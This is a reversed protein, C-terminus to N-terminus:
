VGLNMFDERSLMPMAEAKSTQNKSQLNGRGSEKSQFRLTLKLEYNEYM